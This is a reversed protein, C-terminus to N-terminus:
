ETKDTGKNRESKIPLLGGVIQGVILLIATLGFSTNERVDGHAITAGLVILGVCVTMLIIFRQRDTM